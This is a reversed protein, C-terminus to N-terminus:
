MFLILESCPFLLPVRFSIVYFESIALSSVNSTKIKKFRRLDHLTKSMRRHLFWALHILQLWSKHFLANREHNSLPFGRTLKLFADREDLSHRFSNCNRRKWSRHDLSCSKPFRYFLIKDRNSHDQRCQIRKSNVRSNSFLFKFSSVQKLIAIFVKFFGFQM